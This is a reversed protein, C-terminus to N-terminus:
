REPVAEGMSEANPVLAILPTNEAGIAVSTADAIPPTNAPTIAASLVDVIRFIRAAM